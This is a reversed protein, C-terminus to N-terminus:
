NYLWLGWFLGVDGDEGARGILTALVSEMGDPGLASIVLGMDGAGCPGRRLRGIGVPGLDSLFM